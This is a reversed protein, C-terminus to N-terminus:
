MRQKEGVSRFVINVASRIEQMDSRLQHIDAIMSGLVDDVSQEKLDPNFRKTFDSVEIM